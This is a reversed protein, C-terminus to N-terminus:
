CPVPPPQAHQTCMSPHPVRAATTLLGTYQSTLPRKAEVRQDRHIKLVHADISRIVKWKVLLSWKIMQYSFLSLLCTLLLILHYVLSYHGLWTLDLKGVGERSVRRLGWVLAVVGLVSATRYSDEDFWFLKVGGSNSLWSWLWAMQYEINRINWLGTLFFWEVITGMEPKQYEQKKLWIERIWETDLSALISCASNMGNSTVNESPEFYWDRRWPKLIEIALMWLM